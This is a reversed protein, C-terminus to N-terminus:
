KGTLNRVQGLFQEIIIQRDVLPSIVEVIVIEPGSRWDGLAMDRDGAEIRAKVEPSAYAWTLAAIPQNGRTVVRVQKMMLPAAVHTELFAIPRNRHEPSLTLLWGVQGMTRLFEESTPVDPQCAPTQTM